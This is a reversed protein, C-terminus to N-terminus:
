NKVSILVLHNVFNFEFHVVKVESIEISFVSSDKLFEASLELLVINGTWSHVGDKLDNICM